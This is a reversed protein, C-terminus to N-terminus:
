WNLKKKNEKPIGGTFVSKIFNLLARSSDEYEDVFNEYIEDSKDKSIEPHAVKIMDYFLVDMNAILKVSFMIEEDTNVETESKVGANLKLAEPCIEYLKPIINRKVTLTYKKGAIEIQRTKM